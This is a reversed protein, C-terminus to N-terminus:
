AAIEVRKQDPANPAVVALRQRRGGARNGEMASGTWGHKHVKAFMHNDSGHFVDLSEAWLRSVINWLPKAAMEGLESGHNVSLLQLSPTTQPVV